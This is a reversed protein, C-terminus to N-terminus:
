RRLCTPQAELGPGFEDVVGEAVAQEAFVVGGRLRWPPVVRDAVLTSAHLGGVAEGDEEVAGVPGRGVFV